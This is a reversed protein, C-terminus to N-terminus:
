SAAALDKPAPIINVIPSNAATSEPNSALTPASSAAVPTSSGVASTSVPNAAATPVASPSTSGINSAPSPAASSVPAGELAKGSRSASTPVVAQEYNVSPSAEISPANSAAPANSIQSLLKQVSEPLPPPTPLHAGQPQFGNEDAIYTLSINTGDPAPYSYSGAIVQITNDEPSQDAASRSAVPPGVKIYGSEQVVIGNGAQFGFTFNGDGNDADNQSIIPVPTTSSGSPAESQPRGQAVPVPAAPPPNQPFPLCNCAIFLTTIIFFSWM